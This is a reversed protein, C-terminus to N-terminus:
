MQGRWPWENGSIQPIDHELLGLMNRDGIAWHQMQNVQSSKPFPMSGEAFTTTMSLEEQKLGLQTLYLDIEDGISGMAQDQQQLKAEVYLSAINSM